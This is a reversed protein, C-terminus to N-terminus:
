VRDGLRRLEHKKGGSSGRQRQGARRELSMKGPVLVSALKQDKKGTWTVSVKSQATVKGITVLLRKKSGDM